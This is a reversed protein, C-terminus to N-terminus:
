SEATHTFSLRLSSIRAVHRSTYLPQLNDSQASATVSLLLFSQALVQHSIRVKSRAHLPVAM